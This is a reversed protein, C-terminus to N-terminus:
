LRIASERKWTTERGLFRMGMVFGKLQLTSADKGFWMYATYTKGSKPDYVTGDEWVKESADYVFGNLIQLGFVKRTKLKADPNEKDLKDKDKKMWVIKGEYKGKANKYIQVQSEGEATLWIGSPDPQAYAVFTCALLWFLLYLKRMRIQKLNSSSLFFGHQILLLYIYINFYKRLYKNQNNKIVYILKLV